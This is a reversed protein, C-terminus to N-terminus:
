YGRIHRTVVGPSSGQAQLASAIKFAGAISFGLAAWMFGTGLWTSVFFAWGMWAHVTVGPSIDTAGIMKDAIATIKASSITFLIVTPISALYGVRLIYLPPKSTVLLVVIGYFFSTICISAWTIGIILLVVPGKTHLTGFSSDVPLLEAASSPLTQALSFTYGAKQRVCVSTSQNKNTNAIETNWM